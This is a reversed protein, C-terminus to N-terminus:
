GLARERERRVWAHRALLAILAILALPTLIALGVVTVGLAVRLIDRADRLADGVGWAGNGGGVVGRTNGTEIRVSVRSLSTRRQLATLNKRLALVRNRTSRLEAEVIDREASTEAGALQKLLGDVRARSDRLREGLAISKSTVDATSEHQSRVEDIGSLASLAERLKPSPILLEFRAGAEGASGGSVSSNLVIGDFGRVTEQVRMADSQVNAPEAGLVIQAAREVKRHAAGFAYPGSRASSSGPAVTGNATGSEAHGPAAAPAPAEVTSIASHRQLIATSPSGESSVVLATAVSIAAVTGIVAPALLRRPSRARFRGAVSAFRAGTSGSSPPFGAAVRADLGAAFERRPTPRLTTLTSTFDFEDRYPKM